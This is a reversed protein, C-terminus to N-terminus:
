MRMNLKWGDLNLDAATGFCPRQIEKRHKPDVLNLSGMARLDSNKESIGVHGCCGQASDVPMSYTLYNGSPLGLALIDMSSNKVM